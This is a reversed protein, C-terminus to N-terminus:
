RTDYSEQAIDGDSKTKMNGKKKKVREVSAYPHINHRNLIRWVSTLSGGTENTIEALTKHSKVASSEMVMAANEDNTASKPRGSKPKDLVDGTEQFKSILKSITMNSPTPRLPYMRRFREATKRFSLGEDIKLSILVRREEVTFM